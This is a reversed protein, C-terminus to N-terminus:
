CTASAHMAHRRTVESRLTLGDVGCQGRGSDVIGIFIFELAGAESALQICGALGGINM